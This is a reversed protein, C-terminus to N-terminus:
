IRELWKELALDVIKNLSFYPIQYEFETTTELSQLEEETAPEWGEDFYQMEEHTIPSRNSLKNRIANIDKAYQRFFMRNSYYTEKKALLEKLKKHRNAIVRKHSTIKTGIGESVYGEVLATDNWDTWIRARSIIKSTFDKRPLWLFILISGKNDSCFEACLKSQKSKGNGYKISAATAMEVIRKDFSLIQNRIQLIVKTQEPTCGSLLKQLAPPPIPLSETTDTTPQSIKVKTVKNTDIYKLYLHCKNGTEIIEFQLFELFLKHYKRDTFNDKHFSPTIAVLRVPQGYDIEENFAKEELLADYYRTLQQVIYRDECNKLELVVLRKNEDIAVIDCIQSNVRYQRKLPILGLLQQLNAWIFDELDIESEFEWGSGTKRLRVFIQM